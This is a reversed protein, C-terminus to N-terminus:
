YFSLLSSTNNEEYSKKRRRCHFILGRRHKETEGSWQRAVGNACMTKWVDRGGKRGPGCRLSTISRKMMLLVNCCEDSIQDHFIHDFLKSIQDIRHIVNSATHTINSQYMTLSKSPWNRTSLVKSWIDWLLVSSFSQLLLQHPIYWFLTGYHDDDPPSSLPFGIRRREAGCGCYWGGWNGRESRVLRSGVTPCFSPWTLGDWTVSINYLYLQKKSM